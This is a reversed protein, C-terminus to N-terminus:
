DYRGAFPLSQRRPRSEDADTRHREPQESGNQRAPIPIASRCPRNTFNRLVTIAAGSATPASLRGGRSVGDAAFSAGAGRTSAFGACPIKAQIVRDILRNESSSQGDIAAASAYAAIKEIAGRSSM